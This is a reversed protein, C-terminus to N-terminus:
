QRAPTRHQRQSRAPSPIRALGATSISVNQGAVPVSYLIYYYNFYYYYYHPRLAAKRLHRSPAYMKKFELKFLVAVMEVAVVEVM